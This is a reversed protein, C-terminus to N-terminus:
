CSDHDRWAFKWSVWTSFRPIERVCEPTQAYDTEHDLIQRSWWALCRWSPRCPSRRRKSSSRSWLRWRARKRHDLESRFPDEEQFLGPLSEPGELSAEGPSGPLVPSSRLWGFDTIPVSDTC